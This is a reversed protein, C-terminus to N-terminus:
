NHATYIAHRHLASRQRKDCVWSLVIWEVDERITCFYVTVMMWTFMVVLYGHSFSHSQVRANAQESM